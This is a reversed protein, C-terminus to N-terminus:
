LNFTHSLLVPIHHLLLLRLYVVCHTFWVFWGFSLCLTLHPPRVHMEFLFSSKICVCSSWRPSSHLTGSSIDEAFAHSSSICLVSCSEPNPQRRIRHRAHTSHLGFSGQVVIMVPGIPTRTEIDTHKLILGDMIYLCFWSPFCCFVPSNFTDNRPENTPKHGWHPIM